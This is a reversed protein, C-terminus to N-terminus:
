GVEIGPIAQRLRDVGQDSVASEHVSVFRLKKLQSLLALGADTIKTDELWVEELNSFQGIKQLGKDTVGTSDLDIYRLDPLDPLALLGNDTVSAGELNLLITDTPVSALDTDRYGRGDVSGRVTRLCFVLRDESRTM